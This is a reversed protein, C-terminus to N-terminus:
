DESTPDFEPSKATRHSVWGWGFMGGGVLVPVSLTLLWIQGLTLGVQDYYSAFLLLSRAPEDAPSSPEKSPQTEIM